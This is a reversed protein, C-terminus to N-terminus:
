VCRSTYLLCINYQQENNVNRGILGVWHLASDSIIALLMVAAAVAASGLSRRRLRAAKRRARVGELLAERREAEREAFVLPSDLRMLLDECANILATDVEQSPKRYEANVAAILRARMGDAGLQTVAAKIERENKARM